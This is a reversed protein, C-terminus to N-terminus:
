FKLDAFIFILLKLNLSVHIIESQKIKNNLYLKNKKVIKKM